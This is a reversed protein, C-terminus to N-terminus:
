GLLFELLEDVLQSLAQLLVRLGSNQPVFLQRERTEDQRRARMRLLCQGQACEVALSLEREAVCVDRTGAASVITSSDSAAGAGLILADERSAKLMTTLQERLMNEDLLGSSGSSLASVVPPAVSICPGPSVLLLASLLLPVILLLLLLGRAGFSGALWYSSLWATLQQSYPLKVLRRPLVGTVADRHERRSLALITPTLIEPAPLMSRIARLRERLEFTGAPRDGPSAALLTLLLERVAASAGEPLPPGAPIDRLGQRLLRLDLEGDRYFPHAGFLMRYLLIGLAFFDSALTAPEDRSQEPSVAERSYGPISEGALVAIGFDALVARGEPDILVNAAKLDGHVIRARRLAALAAALDSAIALANAPPLTQQDLLDALTTGPVYRTVLALRRGSAVVDFVEVTRQGEVRTLQWAEQVARRRRSLGGHLHFLKICVRRSLRTDLALFVESQGASALRHLVRYQALGRLL